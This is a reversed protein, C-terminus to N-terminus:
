AKLLWELLNAVVPNKQKSLGSMVVYGFGTLQKESVAVLAGSGIESQMLEDALVIGQGDMAAQVRVNADAIIRQTNESLLDSNGAWQQWLDESRDECLLTAGNFNEPNGSQSIEALLGPSCVPYMAMPMEKLRANDSGGGGQGICPGWRIAIDVDELNFASSNVTHQFKLSVDPHQNCFETVVPSLWRAAVYTTVAISISQTRSASELRTLTASLTNFIQQTTQYLEQGPDTLLVQRVRRKFLQTNLESELKKIQYSVAGKTICLEEAATSFSLHRAASEFVKLSDLNPLTHKM